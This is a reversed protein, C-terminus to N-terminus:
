SEFGNLDSNIRIRIQIDALDSDFHQPNIVEDADTMESLTTFNAPSQIVFALLDGLIGLKTITLCTSFSKSDTDPVPDGGFTLCNKRNTPGIMIGLKLSLPQNNKCFAHLITASDSLIVSQCVPRIANGGDRLVYCIWGLLVSLSNDNKQAPHLSSTPPLQVDSCHLCLQQTTQKIVNRQRDAASSKWM